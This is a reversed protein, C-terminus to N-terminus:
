EEIESNDMFVRVIKLHQMYISVTGDRADELQFDLALVRSNNLPIGSLDQVTTRELDLPLVALNRMYNYHNQGANAVGTDAKTYRYLGINMDNETNKECNKGFLAKQLFFTEAQATSVPYAGTKGGGTVWTGSNPITLDTDLFTSEPEIERNRIKQQPFYLNGARWQWEDYNFPWTANQDRTLQSYYKPKPSTPDASWVSTTNPRFVAMAGFARSVAKRVEIHAQSIAGQTAYVTTDWTRFMIELGDNAARENLERQISDTLKISDLVFECQEVRYTYPSSSDNLSDPFQLANAATEFQIEIRLGSMLHSPLLQDFDFLGCLFRMPIVFARSRGVGSYPGPAIPPSETLDPTPWLGPKNYDYATNKQNAVGATQLSSQTIDMPDYDFKDVTSPTFGLQIGDTEFWATSYSNRVLLNALRGVDRVREIENGSRDTLTINRIMDLVSGCPNFHPQNQVTAFESAQVMVPVVKFHLYSDAANVFDAGSNIICFATEGPTYSSKQFPHRKHTRETAVSLDPFMEYQLSNFDLMTDVNESKGEDGRYAQTAGQSTQSKAQM